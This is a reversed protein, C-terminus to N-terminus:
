KRRLAEIPSLSAGWWAPYAAGLVGVTIALLFGLAIFGPAIYGDVFGATAPFTSFYRTMVVAMVSGLVAGILSLLLSEGMIMWVVRSKKWGIARLTGIEKIREHVAMAMTNLMGIAGIILAIGSTMWAMGRSAKIHSVSGVFKKMPEASVKKDLSEIERKLKAVGAPSRDKATVLFASIRGRRDMKEQLTKLPITLAGNEYVNFSEFIGVVKMPEGYLEITDGVKQGTTAALMKGLLVAHDHEPKLTEGEIIKVHDFLASGPAWGNAVVMFLGFKELAIVDVLGGVARKVDPLALLKEGFAEKIGRNLIQSGGSEQVVLDVATRDYLEYYSQEFRTAVGVLAVMAAVAVALGVITLLSRTRRRFLNKILISLFTM